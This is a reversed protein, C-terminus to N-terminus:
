LIQQLLKPTYSIVRAVWTCANILGSVREERQVPQKM